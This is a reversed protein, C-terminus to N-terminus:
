RAMKQGLFLYRLKLWLHSREFFLRRYFYARIFADQYADKAIVLLKDAKKLCTAAKRYTGLSGAGQHIDISHILSTPGLFYIAKVPYPTLMGEPQAIMDELLEISKSNCEEIVQGLNKASEPVMPQKKKYGRRRPRRNNSRKKRRSM